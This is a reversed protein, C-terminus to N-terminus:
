RQQGSIKEQIQKNIEVHLKSIEVEKKLLVLVREIRAPVDFTELVEQLEAGSATTLNAAFDALRGPDDFSSRSLFMKIVESQLPNLKVLEKLTTIVSMAYAKLEENIELKAPDPYKVDAVMGFDTKRIDGITFREVSNILIGPVEGSDVIARMARKNGDGKQSEFEKRSLRWLM